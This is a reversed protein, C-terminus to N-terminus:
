NIKELELESFANQYDVDYYSIGDINDLSLGNEDLVAELEEESLTHDIELTGIMISGIEDPDNYYRLKFKYKSIM